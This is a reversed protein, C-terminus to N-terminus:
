RDGPTSQGESALRRFYQEIVDRYHSPFEQGIQQLAAERQKPPLDGWGSQNGIPREDVDGRGSGGLIRSDPAPTSSRSSGSAGASSQQQQQQEELEKILKDLSAIVGDEIEIVKQNARGLELRRRIDDMRRSIHDLSEEEVAELDHRMLEAVSAFRQPPDAVEDLLRGIAELGAQKDLLRHYIVGQYFLLAAPDIVQAPQLEALQALAEDYMEEHVLWRGYWLRLNHRVTPLTAEDFLWAQPPLIARDRPALGREVLEAARADVLAVTHVFRALLESGSAELTAPDWLAEAEALIELSAQQEVLVEFALSRVDDAAPTQYAPAASNSPLPMQQAALPAGALLVALLSTLPTIHRTM